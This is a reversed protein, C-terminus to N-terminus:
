MQYSIISNHINISNKNKTKVGVRGSRVMVQGKQRATGSVWVEALRIMERTAWSGDVMVNAIMGLYRAPRNM